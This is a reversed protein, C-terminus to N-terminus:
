GCHGCKRRSDSVPAEAVIAVGDVVDVADVAAAELLARAQSQWDEIQRVTLSSMRKELVASDTALLGAATTIGIAALGKAREAGIGKIATVPIDPEEIDARVYRRALLRALGAESLWAPDITEGRTVIRHKGDKAIALHRLARYVAM